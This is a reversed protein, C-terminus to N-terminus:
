AALGGPPMTDPTPAPPMGGAPEGPAMGGGPPMPSAAMMQAQMAQQMAAMAESGLFAQKDPVNYLRIWQELLAKAAQPTQLLAAVMPNTQAIAAVAQLSGNFDARNRAKDATEVSGRPKFRFAGELVEATLRRNPLVELVNVGRTELGQLMSSPPELGDAMEALARKWMLHRVQAIEELTEQINKVAEDTRIESYATAMRQEGLTRDDQSVVGASIDNLGILKDASRETDRIRELGSHTYDPIQFPEVERMDRVRIVSKPGVPEEDPDWLAGALVKIPAQLQLSARDAVLNRWATNEEIATILKHGIVSYGETSDPRPFPVLPFYRPRGIDDYQLRLLQRRDKHLTAVYWRLGTKDLSTLFTIEWLEKEALPGDKTPVERTEGALTRDSAHEDDTGIAAVAAQDYVGQDVREQLENVRRWFRKAYGWVEERSRAHGPLQVFDRYPIVRHRPGRCVLEFSDLELQIAPQGDQTVEIYSGDEQRMPLPQMREDVIPSGDESLMPQVWQVKRVPRRITDEYVELVGRPEVLALHVARSFAAQFGEAEAQWQHFEEVFPAKKAADGWGEVTWIPDTMVTRVIRARLADVKETGIASTLDAADPWPSNLANRTRGQEYLTHWYAVEQESASRVGLANDLEQTLWSALDERQADSLSVEFPRRARKGPSM